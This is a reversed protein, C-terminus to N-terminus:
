IKRRFQYSTTLEDDKKLVQSSSQFSKFSFIFIFVENTLDMMVFMLATIFTPQHELLWQLPMFDLMFKM